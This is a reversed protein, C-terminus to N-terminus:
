FTIVRFASLLAFIFFFLFPISCLLATFSAVVVAASVVILLLLFM